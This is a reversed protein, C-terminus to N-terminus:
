PRTRYGSRQPRALGRRRRATLHEAAWEVMLGGLGHGRQREVLRVDVDPSVDELYRYRVIGVRGAGPVDVWYTPNTGTFDGAQIQARADEATLRPRSHFPWTEAALWEALSATEDDGVLSFVPDSSM